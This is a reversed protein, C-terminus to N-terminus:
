SVPLKAMDGKGDKIWDPDILDQRDAYLFKYAGRITGDSVHAVRSVEKASKPHGMLHSAMYICAGVISLPSRGALEGKSSVRDALSTSVSTVQYPLELLNCFRNCLDSPKTSTTFADQESPEPVGGSATINKAREMDQAQFFKTLVKFMRGLDKKSLKTITHMESFTRDVNCRRCALFICGGILHEQSKGRLAKADDVVKFLYKSTDAVIKPLSFADCLSGIEKYAALLQKNTKENSQKNQARYLDRSRGSGGSAISTELQDGNLLPNMADGVRSPDDSNQDDNSFTRWESHMDIERDALVLGCSGCVTEHSDPFELNPPVEKCEPCIVAVSLNKKWPTAPQAPAEPQAPPAMPALRKTPRNDEFDERRKAPNM